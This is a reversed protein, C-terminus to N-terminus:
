KHLGSKRNKTKEQQLDVAEVITLLMVEEDM